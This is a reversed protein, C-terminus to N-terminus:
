KTKNKVYPQAWKMLDDYETTQWERYALPIEWIPTACTKQKYAWNDAMFNVSIEKESM